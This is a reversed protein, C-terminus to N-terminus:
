LAEGQGATFVAGEGDDRIQMFYMSLCLKFACDIIMEVDELNEQKAHDKLYELSKVITALPHDSISVSEKGVGNKNAMVASGRKSIRSM